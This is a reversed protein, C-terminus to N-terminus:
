STMHCPIDLLSGFSGFSQLSVKKTLPLTSTPTSGLLDQLNELSMDRVRLPMHAEDGRSIYLVSKTKKEPAASGTLAQLGASSDFNQLPTVNKASSKPLLLQASERREELDMVSQRSNNSLSTQKTPPSQPPTIIGALDQTATRTSTATLPTAWQGTIMISPVAVSQVCKTAAGEDTRRHAFEDSCTPNNQGMFQAAFFMDTESTFNQLGTCHEPIQQPPFRTATALTSQSTIPAPSTFDCSTLIPGHGSSIGNYVMMNNGQLLGGEIPDILTPKNASATVRTTSAPEPYLLEPHDTSLATAVSQALSGCAMAHPPLDSKPIDTKTPFLHRASGMLKQPQPQRSQSAEMQYKMPHCGEGECHAENETSETEDTENGTDALKSPDAEQLSTETDQQGKWSGVVGKRSVKRSSEDKSFLRLSGSGRKPRHRKPTVGARIRKETMRRNEFWTKIQKWSVPHAKSNAVGAATARLATSRIHTEGSADDLLPTDQYVTAGAPNVVNNNVSIGTPYWSHGYKQEGSASFSEFETSRNREPLLSGPFRPTGSVALTQVEAKVDMSNSRTVVASVMTIEDLMGPPEEFLQESTGKQAYPQDIDENNDLETATSFEPVPKKEQRGTLEQPPENGQQVAELHLSGGERRIPNASFRLAVSECVDRSPTKGMQRYFLDVLEKREEETFRFGHVCESFNTKAAKGGHRHHKDERARESKSSSCLVRVQPRADYSENNDSDEKADLSSGHDHGNHVAPAGGEATAAASSRVSFRTQM